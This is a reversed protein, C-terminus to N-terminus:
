SRKSEDTWHPYPIEQTSEKRDRVPRPRAKAVVRVAKTDTPERADWAQRLLSESTVVRSAKGSLIRLVEYETATLAVARWHVMVRRRVHEM